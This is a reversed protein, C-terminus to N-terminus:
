CQETDSLDTVPADLFKCLNPYTRSRAGIFALFKAPEEMDRMSELRAFECMAHTFEINKMIRDHRTNGRFIRLEMTGKSSYGLADYHGFATVRGPLGDAFSKPARKSWQEGSRQAVREILRTNNNSNVFVLMKGTQLPTLAKRNIHVHMGCTKTNGSKAIPRIAASIKKWPVLTEAKHAEFTQPVTIIEVGNDLSGDHALIYAGDKLQAGTPGGLAKCITGQESQRNNNGEIELEVGFLLAETPANAPWPHKSLVNTGYSFLGGDDDSDDDESEEDEPDSYWDGNNHQYYNAEAYWVAVVIDLDLIHAAFDKHVHLETSECWFAHDDRCSECYILSSRRRVYVETCDETLVREDCHECTQADVEIETYEYTGSAPEFHVFCEDTDLGFAEREDDTIEYSELVGAGQADWYPALAGARHWPSTVPSVWRRGTDSRAYTFGAKFALRMAQRRIGFVSM